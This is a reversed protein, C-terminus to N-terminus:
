KNGNILEKILLKKDKCTEWDYQWIIKVNYGSKEAM